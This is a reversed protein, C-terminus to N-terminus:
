PCRHNHCAKCVPTGLCADELEQNVLNMDYDCCVGSNAQIKLDWKKIM